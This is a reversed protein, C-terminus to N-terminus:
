RVYVVDVSSAVNRFAGVDSYSLRIPTFVSGRFDIDAYMRLSCHNYGHFSEIRDNWNNTGAPWGPMTARQGYSYSGPQACPNVATTSHLYSDGTYNLGDYWRVMIYTAMVGVQGESAAGVRAASEFQRAAQATPQAARSGEGEVRIGHDLLLTDAADQLTEGCVEIDLDAVNICNDRPNDLGDTNDAASSAGGTLTAAGIVAAVFMISPKM